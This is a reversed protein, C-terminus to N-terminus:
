LTSDPYLGIMVACWLGGGVAWVCLGGWLVAQARATYQLVYLRVHVYRRGVASLLIGSSRIGRGRLNRRQLNTVLGENLAVLPLYFGRPHRFSLGASLAGLSSADLCLRHDSTRTRPSHLTIADRAPRHKERSGNYCAFNETPLIRRGARCACLEYSRRAPAFVSGRVHTPPLGQCRGEGSGQM